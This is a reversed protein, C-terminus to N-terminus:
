KKREPIIPPAEKFTVEVPMIEYEELDLRKALFKANEYTILFALPLSSADDRLVWMKM